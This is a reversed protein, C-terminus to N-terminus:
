ALHKAQFIQMINKELNPQNFIFNLPVYDFKHAHAVLKINYYYIPPFFWLIQM